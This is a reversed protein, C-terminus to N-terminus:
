KLLMEIKATGRTESIYDNIMTSVKQKKLYNQINQNAEKFTVKDGPKRETLKIIHYGFETEVVYSMEGVKLAMAAMEFKPVMQGKTFFGLDGGKEKSPCTSNAKALEAFDAGDALQKRLQEAKEKAAKHEKEGAKEDVGILIHSARLSEQKTFKSPNQDYFKKADAETITVKSAFTKDIFNSVILDRRIYERLDKEELELDKMAKDFIEPKPFQAKDQAIKDDIQKDLDKIELKQGAQYLLEASVLKALTEKEVDKKLEIDSMNKLKEDPPIINKTARKLEKATIPVGNVKAVIEPMAVVSEVKPAVAKTESDAANALSGCSLLAAVMLGTSYLKQRSVPM